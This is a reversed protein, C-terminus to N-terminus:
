TRPLVFDFRGQLPTGDAIKLLNAASFIGDQANQAVGPFYLQTTLTYSSSWVKVHIHETRGPYLGPVITEFTYRGQADTVVYGRLTYGSNDYNGSADAQWVDVKANPIAQCQTTLVFGSVVIRTGAMGTPALVSKQPAGAKYYPGETMEMTAKAPASCSPQAAAAAPAAAGSASAPTETKAVAVTPAPTAAPASAGGAGACAAALLTVLLLMGVRDVNMSRGGAPRM